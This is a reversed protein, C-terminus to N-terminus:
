FSQQTVRSWWSHAHRNSLRSFCLEKLLVLSHGHSLGYLSHGHTLTHRHLSMSVCAHWHHTLELLWFSKGCFRIWAEFPHFQERVCCDSGLMHKRMSTASTSFEWRVQQAFSFFAPIFPVLHWWFLWPNHYFMAGFWHSKSAKTELTCIVAGFSIWVFDLDAREVWPGVLPYDYCVTVKIEVVLSPAGKLEAIDNALGLGQDKIKNVLVSRRLNLEAFDDDVISSTWIKWEIM